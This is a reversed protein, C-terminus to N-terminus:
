VIDAVCLIHKSFIKTDNIKINYKPLPKNKYNAIIQIRGNTYIISSKTVDFEKIEIIKDIRCVNCKATIIINCVMQVDHIMIEKIHFKVINLVEFPYDLFEQKNLERQIHDNIKDSLVEFSLIIKHNFQVIETLECEM